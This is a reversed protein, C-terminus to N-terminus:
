VFASKEFMLNCPVSSRFTLFLFGRCYTLQTKLSSFVIKFIHITAYLQSLTITSPARERLNIYRCKFLGCTRISCATIKKRNWHAEVTTVYMITSNCNSWDSLDCFAHLLFTVFQTVHFNSSTHPIHCLFGCMRNDNDDSNNIDYDYDDDDGDDDAPAADGVCDGSSDLCWCATPPLFKKRLSRRYM